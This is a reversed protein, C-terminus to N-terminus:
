LRSRRLGFCLYALGGFVPVFIGILIWAAQEIRSSFKHTGAHWIAWLNILAPAFCLALQAPTLDFIGLSM